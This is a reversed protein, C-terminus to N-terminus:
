IIPPIPTLHNIKKGPNRSYPILKGSGIKEIKKCGSPQHGRNGKVQCTNKGPGM